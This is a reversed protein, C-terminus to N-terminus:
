IFVIAEGESLKRGAVWGRQLEDFDEAIAIVRSGVPIQTGQLGDPFGKGDFREHHHKIIQAIEAMGSLVRLSQFAKDPHQMLLSRNEGTLRAIPNHLVPDPLSLKGIDHLLAAHYVVEVEEPKMGIERALLRALEAVTRSHSALPLYRNEILNIMSKISTLFLTKLRTEAQDLKSHMRKIQLTQRELLKLSETKFNELSSLRNQAEMEEVQLRHRRSSEQLVEVALSSAQKENMPHKFVRQLHNENLPALASLVGGEPLVAVCLPQIQADMLGKLFAMAETDLYKAHVLVLAPMEQCARELATVWNKELFTVVGKQEIIEKPLAPGLGGVEVILACPALPKEPPAKRAVASARDDLM